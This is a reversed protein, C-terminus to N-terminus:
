LPKGDRTYMRQKGQKTPAPKKGPLVEGIQQNLDNLCSNCYKGEKIEVGCRTCRFIVTMGRSELRGDRLFQLIKEEEVGTAEAVEFVSAGPNDRVYKRVITFEDDEAQQCKRCVNRGDAAFLRGCKPCNRLNSM